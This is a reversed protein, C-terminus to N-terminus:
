RGLAEIRRHLEHYDCCGDRIVKHNHKADYSFAEDLVALGFDRVAHEAWQECETRHECARVYEAQQTRCDCSWGSAKLVEDVAAWAEEITM